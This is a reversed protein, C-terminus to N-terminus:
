LRLIAASVIMTGPKIKPLVQQYGASRERLQMAAAAPALQGTRVSELLAMVSDDVITSELGAAPM